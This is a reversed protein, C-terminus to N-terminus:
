CVSSLGLEVTGPAQPRTGVIAMHLRTTLEPRVKEAEERAKFTVMSGCPICVVIQKSDLHISDHDQKMQILLNHM